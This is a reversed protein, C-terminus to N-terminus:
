QAQEAPTAVSGTLLEFDELDEIIAGIPDDTDPPVLSPPREPLKAISEFQTSEMPKLALHRKALAQVRIPNDLMSWDARLSAITERERRLELRLKAVREAQLTSEFKIKYVYSAALVLAAIVMINFLRMINM